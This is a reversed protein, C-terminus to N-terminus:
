TSLMGKIRPYTRSGKANERLVGLNKEVLEIASVDYDEKALAISYRGTGAAIELM